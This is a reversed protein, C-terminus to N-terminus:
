AVPSRLDFRLSLIDFANIQTSSVSAELQVAVADSRLARLVARAREPASGLDIVNLHNEFAVGNPFDAEVDVIAAKLRLAEDRPAIRRVVVYSGSQRVHKSASAGPRLFRQVHSPKVHDDDSALRGLADSGILPVASDDGDLMIHEAQRFDVVSGTQVQMDDCILPPAELARQLSKPDGSPIRIGHNLYSSSVVLDTPLKQVVIEELDHSGVSSSMSVSPGAPQRDFAIIVVEQLVHDRGFVARRGKFHHIATLSGRSFLYNRLHKFTPGSCFSRPVIAVMRGGDALRAFALWMFAAYLNPTIVGAHRLARQQPSHSPLRAYPPNMIVHSFTREPAERAWSLFDACVVKAGRPELAHRADEALVADLEVLTASEINLDAAAVVDFVAETLWGPGAGADLLEIDTHADELLMRAALSAVEPPTFVQTRDHESEM